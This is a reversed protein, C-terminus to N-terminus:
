GPSMASCLERAKHDVTGLQLQGTLWSSNLNHRKLNGFRGMEATFSRFKCPQLETLFHNGLASFFDALLHFGHTQEQNKKLINGHIAPGTSNIVHGSNPWLLRYFVAM